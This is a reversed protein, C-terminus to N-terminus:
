NPLGTCSTTDMEWAVITAVFAGRGPYGCLVLRCVAVVEVPGLVFLLRFASGRRMGVSALGGIRWEGRTRKLTPGGWLVARSMGMDDCIFANM